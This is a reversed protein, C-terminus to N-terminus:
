ITGEDAFSYYGSESNVILHDILNSDILKAAAAIKRTLDIDQQSPVLNGSPHNHALMFGCANLKIATVLIHKTDVVTGTTGGESILQAALVKNNRNLFIAWFSEKFEIQTADFLKSFIESADRSCSIKPRDSPKVKSQYTVKVEAVNNFIMQIEDM